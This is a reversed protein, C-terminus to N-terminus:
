FSQLTLSLLKLVSCKCLLSGLFEAVSVALNCSGYSIMYFTTGGTSLLWDTIWMNLIKDSVEFRFRKVLHIDKEDLLSYKHQLIILSYITKFVTLLM